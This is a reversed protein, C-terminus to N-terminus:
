FIVNMDVGGCLGNVTGYESFQWMDYDYFFDPLQQDRTYAALWVSYQSVPLYDLATCFFNRSAYVGAQYGATEITKCFARAIDTRKTIPLLDARGDPYEGSYESDFYIPMDLPMGALNKLTFNAEKVAEDPTIATSYFYIGVKIGAARAEQIYSYFFIDNYPLGSTWGRGGIRLIAFDIGAAKIAKWDVKGCYFSVDIGLGRAKYGNDDFFYLKGDIRRYGTLRQGSNGIYCIRDDALQWGASSSQHEIPIAEIAFDTNVTNDSYILEVRESHLSVSTDDTFHEPTILRLGYIEGTQRNNVLIVDSPEGTKKYFLYGNEDTSFSYSFTCNGNEDLVPDAVLPRVHDSHSSVTIFVPEAHYGLGERLSVQYEGSPLGDLYFSGNTDSDYSFAIGNPFVIDLVYSQGASIHGNDDCIVIYLDEETSTVALSLQKTLASGPVLVTEAPQPVPNEVPDFSANRAHIFASLQSIFLGASIFLVVAWMIVRVVKGAIENTNKNKNM